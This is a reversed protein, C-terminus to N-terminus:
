VPAREAYHPRHDFALLAAAVNRSLHHRGIGRSRCRRVSRANGDALRSIARHRHRICNGRSHLCTQRAGRFWFIAPCCSTSPKAGGTPEFAFRRAAGSVVRYWCKLSYIEEDRQYRAPRALAELAQPISQPRAAPERAWVPARINLAPQKVDMEAGGDDARGGLPQTTRTIRLLMAVSPSVVNPLIVSRPNSLYNGTPPPRGRAL